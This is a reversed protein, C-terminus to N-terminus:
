KSALYLEALQSPTVAVFDPGLEDVLAKLSSPPYSWSLAMVNMFAPRQSPVHALIDRKLFAREAEQTRDIIDTTETWTNWRTLTHMVPVGEIVSNAKAPTTQEHRGFGPLWVKLEPIGQIFRKYIVNQFPSDGWGGMHATMAREDARMMYERTLAVFQDYAESKNPLKSAFYPPSMYGLGSVAAFMEDNPTANAYYWDAVAPMVDLFSPTFSWGIPVSGRAPDDWVVRQQRELYWLSDGSDIVNLAVYVKKPDLVPKTAAKFTTQRFREAPVQVGSHFSMNSAFESGSLFKGYRSCLLLADYESRGKSPAGCSWWGLVPISAPTEKLLREALAWEKKPDAGPDKADALGSAWFTFIRHQVLYDRPFQAPTNPYMVALAKRSMRPWLERYAWEYAEINTKWKGRLDHVIPLVLGPGGQRTLEAYLGESVVLCDDLSALMCAVNTSAEVADDVIVAGKVFSAYDAIFELPSSAPKASKVYGQELMWSLWQPDQGSTGILYVEPTVRNALGQLVSVALLLDKPAGSVDVVTVEQSVPNSKPYVSSVSSARAGAPGALGMFCATLIGIAVVVARSYRSM